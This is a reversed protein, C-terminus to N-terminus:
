DGYYDLSTSSHNEITPMIRARIRADRGIPARHRSKKASQKIRDTYEGILEHDVGGEVDPTFLPKSSTRQVDGVLEPSPYVNLIFQHRPYFKLYDTITHASWSRIAEHSAVIDHGVNLVALDYNSAMNIDRYLGWNINYMFVGYRSIVAHAAFRATAGFILATSLDHSSPFPGCRLDAPHTHFLILGPRAAYKAVLEAPVGAFALPADDGMTGAEIPSPESRAIHLTRGDADLNVVGIHERNEHLKPGMLAM